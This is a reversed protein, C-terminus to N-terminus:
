DHQEGKLDDSCNRLVVRVKSCERLLTIREHCYAGRNGETYMSTKKFQEETYVDSCNLCGEIVDPHYARFAGCAAERNAAVVETWGGCYPFQRSTGYTFYFKAM